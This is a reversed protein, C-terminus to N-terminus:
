LRQLHLVEWGRGQGDPYKKDAMYPNTLGSGGRPIPDGGLNLARSVRIACTDKYAKFNEDEFHQQVSGGILVAVAAGDSKGDPFNAILQTLSPIQPM